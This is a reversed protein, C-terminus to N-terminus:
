MEGQTGCDLWSRQDIVVNTPMIVERYYADFFEYRTDKSSAQLPSFVASFPCARCVVQEREGQGDCRLLDQFTTWGVGGTKGQAWM